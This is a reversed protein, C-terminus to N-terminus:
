KAGKHMFAAEFSVGFTAPEAAGAAPVPPIDTVPGVEIWDIVTGDVTGTYNDLAKKAAKALAKAEPYTPALLDVVMRGTTYGASGAMHHARNSSALALVIRPRRENQDGVVSYIRDGVVAAVDAAATLIQRFAVEIV